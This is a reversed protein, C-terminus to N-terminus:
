GSAFTVVVGTAAENPREFVTRFHAIEGPKLRSRPPAITKAQVERDRADRLAVRLRPVARTAKGTNTIEGEIVLGGGSRTPKIRGIELGNAPPAVPLGVFAYAPAAQPYRAVVQRRGLIAAAVAAAIVVLLLVWFVGKGRRQRPHPLPALDPPRPPVGLPLEARAAPPATAAPEVRAAPPAAPAAPESRQHWTNGCSACRVTRGAAGGLAREDVLYRTRCAPCTVIM